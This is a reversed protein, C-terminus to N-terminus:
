GAYTRMSTDVGSMCRVVESVQWPLGRYFPLLNTYLPWRVEGRQGMLIASVIGAAVDKPELQPAIWSPTHVESFMGTRIQGPCILLTKIGQPSTSPPGLEYTLSEHLAILGAKSAGYASLQAPSLYGLVSAVTVIYGRHEAIMDPLFAKVTYFCATLNVAIIHEIEEFTLDVVNKGSTIGANNVLVTVIGVDRFIQKQCQLVQSKDSVDCRYYYLGDRAPPPQVDMVVVVGQLQIVQCALAWGLGHSGGTVLVIDTKPDYRHGLFRSSLMGLGNSARCAFSVVSEPSM